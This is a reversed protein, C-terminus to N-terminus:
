FTPADMSKVYLLILLAMPVSAAVFATVRRFKQADELSVSRTVDAAVLGPRRIVMEVTRWYAKWRGIEHRYNWPISSRRLKDRDLEQGCEPCQRSEIGRLDYGCEPCILDVEAPISAPIAGPISMIM